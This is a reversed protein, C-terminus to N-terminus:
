CAQLVKGEDKVLELTYESTYKGNNYKNCCKGCAIGKKYKRVTKTENGCHPCKYIYRYPKFFSAKSTRNPRGGLHKMVSKWVEDHGHGAGFAYYVIAHGIEHLVTDRIEEERGNRKCDNFFPISFTLTTYKIDGSTRSTCRGLVRYMKNSYEVKYRLNPCRDRLEEHVMRQISFMDFEITM